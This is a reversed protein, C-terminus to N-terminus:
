FANMCRYLPLFMGLLLLGMFVGIVLLLLPELLRLFSESALKVQEAYGRGALEFIDATNGTEESVAALQAMYGPFFASERFAKGLTQGCKLGDSIARVANALSYNNLAEGAVELCLPLPMGSRLLVALTQCFRALLSQKVIQGIGYLRLSWSQCICRGRPTKMFSCAGWVAASLGLGGSVAWLPTSFVRGLTLIIRTLLPLEVDQPIAQVIVPLLYLTFWALGLLSAILLFFPYHLAASLSRKIKYESELLDALYRLTPALNSSREAARILGIELLSFVQSQVSMARSMSHGATVGYLVARWACRMQKHSGHQDLVELSRLLPVGSNLMVALQRISLMKDRVGPRGKRSLILVNPM